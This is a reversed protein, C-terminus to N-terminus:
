DHDTGGLALHKQLTPLFSAAKELSSNVVLAEPFQVEELISHARAHNGVDVECHADSNMIIPVQYKRCYKLMVILNEHSNKRHCGPTLSSNNVELLM